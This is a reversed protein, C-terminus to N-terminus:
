EFYKSSTGTETTSRSLGILKLSSLQPVIKLILFIFLDQVRPSTLLIFRAIFENLLGNSDFSLKSVIM